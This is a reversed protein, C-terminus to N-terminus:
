ENQFTATYTATREVKTLSPIKKKFKIICQVGDYYVQDGEMEKTRSYNHKGLELESLYINNHTYFSSM